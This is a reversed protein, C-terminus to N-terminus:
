ETNASTRCKGCIVSMSAVSPATTVILVHSRPHVVLWRWAMGHEVLGDRTMGPHGPRKGTMRPHRGQSMMRSMPMMAPTEVTAVAAM